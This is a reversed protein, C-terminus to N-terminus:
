RCDDYGPVAIDAESRDSCITVRGTAALRVNLAYTEDDSLMKVELPMAVTDDEDLMGRVPDFIVLEDSGGLDIATMNVPKNLISNSIVRLAMATGDGFEDIACANEANPDMETCDCEGSGDPDFTFYGMCQNAEDRWIAIKENRKVSEMKASSLFASIQEAGSTLRRKEILTHYSPLALSTVIAIVAVVIMLEIITFGKHTSFEKKGKQPDRRLRESITMETELLM